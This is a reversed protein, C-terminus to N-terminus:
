TNLREEPRKNNHFLHHPKLGLQEDNSKGTRLANSVPLNTETIKHRHWGDFRHNHKADKVTHVANKFDAPGAPQGIAANWAAQVDM